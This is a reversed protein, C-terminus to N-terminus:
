KETTVLQEELKGYEQYMCSNPNMWLSFYNDSQEYLSMLNEDWPRTLWDAIPEYDTNVTQRIDTIKEAEYLNNVDVMALNCTSLPIEKGEANIKTDPIQNEPYAVLQWYSVPSIPKRMLTVIGSVTVGNVAMKPDSWTIKWGRQFSPAEILFEYYPGESDKKVTVTDQFIWNPNECYKGGPDGTPCSEYFLTATGQPVSDKPCRLKVKSLSASYPMQWYIFAPESYSPFLSDYNRWSQSPDQTLAYLAKYRWGSEVDTSSVLKLEQGALSFDEVSFQAEYPSDDYYVQYAIQYRSSQMGLLRLDIIVPKVPINGYKWVINGSQITLFKNEGSSQVQMSGPGSYPQGTPILTYASSEDFGFFLKYRESASPLRDYIPRAGSVWETPQPNLKKAQAYQPSIFVGPSYNQSVEIQAIGGNIPNLKQSM